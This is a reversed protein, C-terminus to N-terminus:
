RISFRIPVTLDIREGRVEPPPPPFPQARRLLDLVEQDLLAFGSGRVIGSAVVRGRRDLSFSLQVVGQQARDRAQAPYRKNRELVVGLQARWAPIAASNSVNPAGESPAAATDAIIVQPAEPASTTPAPLSDSEVEAVNPRAENPMTSDAVEPTEIKVDTPPRQIQEPKPPEPDAERPPRTITPEPDEDKM